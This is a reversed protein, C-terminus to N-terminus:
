LDVSDENRSLLYRRIADRLAPKADGRIELVGQSNRYVDTDPDYAHTTLISWRSWYQRDRKSGHWGHSIRGAVFGVDGRVVETALRQWRLVDRAYNAGIGPPLTLDAHGILSGMMHHDGAGLVGGEFIPLRELVDRRFAIAFGPHWQNGLVTPKPATTATLKQSKPASLSLTSPPMMLSDSGYHYWGCAERVRHEEHSQASAASAVAAARATPPKSKAGKALADKVADKVAAAATRARPVSGPWDGGAAHCSLFSQHVAIVEGRPGLDVCYQWPQVVRHTQLATVLEQCFHPNEFRVDADAFLVYECGHPLFRAGINWLNEKLWIWSSNRVRVDVFPVGSDADAGYIAVRDPEAVRSPTVQFDLEGLACEVTVLPLRLEVLVHRRFQEYLAFRSRYRAPNSICCVVWLRHERLALAVHPDPEPEGAIPRHARPATAAAREAETASSM